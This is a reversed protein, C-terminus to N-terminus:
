KLITSVPNKNSFDNDLMSNILKFSQFDYLDRDSIKIENLVGSDIMRARATGPLLPSDPTYWSYGDFLAINSFSTDSIRGNKVILIDDCNARKEFLDNLLQRDSYKHAYNISDCYVLKLSKITRPRYFDFSM